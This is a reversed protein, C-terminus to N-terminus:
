NVGTAQSTSANTSDQFPMKRAGRRKTPLTKTKTTFKSALCKTEATKRRKSILTANEDEDEEDDDDIVVILPATQTLHEDNGRVVRSSAKAAKMAQQKMQRKLSRTTRSVLAEKESLVGYKAATFMLRLKVDDLAIRSTISYLLGLGTGLRNEDRNSSEIVNTTRFGSNWKEREMHSYGPVLCAVYPWASHFTVFAKGVEGGLNGIDRFTRDAQGRTATEMLSLMLDKVDGVDSETLGQARLKPLWRDNVARLYHVQCVRICSTVHDQWSMGLEPYRQALFVGIAKIQARDMDMSLTSIGNTVNDAHNFKVRMGTIKTVTTFVWKIMELIADTGHVHTSWVRALTVTRFVPEHLYTVIKLQKYEHNSKFTADIQLHAVQAMVAAAGKSLVPFFEFPRMSPDFNPNLISVARSLDVDDMADAFSEYDVPYKIEVLGHMATEERRAAMAAIAMIVGERGTGHPLQRSLVSRRFTAHTQLDTLIPNMELLGDKAAILDRLQASTIPVRTADLDFLDLLEQKARGSVGTPPPPPHNHPGKTVVHIIIFNWYPHDEARLQFEPVVGAGPRGGNKVPMDAIYPTWIHYQVPCTRGMEEYNLTDIPRHHSSKCKMKTSPAKVRCIKRRMNIDAVTTTGDCLDKLLAANIDESVRHVRHGQDGFEWGTCGLYHQVNLSPATMRTKDFDRFRLGGTCKASGVKRVFPCPIGM